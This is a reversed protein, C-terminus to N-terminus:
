VLQVNSAWGGLCPLLCRAHGMVTSKGVGGAPQSSAHGHPSPSPRRARVMPGVLRRCYQRSNGELLPPVQPFTCPTGSDRVTLQSHHQQSSSAWSCRGGGASSRAHRRCTHRLPCRAGAAALQSTRRHEKRGRLVVGAAHQVAIGHRAGCGCCGGARAEQRRLPPRPARGRHRARRQHLGRGLLPHKLAGGAPGALKVNAGRHTPAPQLPHTGCLSAPRAIQLRQLTRRCAVCEDGRRVGGGGAM